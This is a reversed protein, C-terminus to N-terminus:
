LAGGLIKSCGYTFDINFDGMLVVEINDSIAKGM